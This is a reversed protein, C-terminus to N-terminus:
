PKKHSQADEIFGLLRYFGRNFIGEIEFFFILFFNESSQFIIGCLM